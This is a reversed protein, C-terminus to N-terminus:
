DTILLNANDLMAQFRITDMLLRREGLSCHRYPTIAQKLTPKVDSHYIIPSM